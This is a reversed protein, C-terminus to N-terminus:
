SVCSLRHWAQGWNVRRDIEAARDAYFRKFIIGTDERHMPCLLYSESRHHARTGPEGAGIVRKVDRLPYEGFPRTECGSILARHEQKLKFLDMQTFLAIIGFPM